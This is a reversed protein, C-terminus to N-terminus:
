GHPRQGLHLLLAKAVADPLSLVRDPGVGISRSGGIGRLQAAVLRLREVPSVTSPLRLQLSILRGLAEALAAIDSGARGVNIFVEFPGDEDSNVTANVKGDPSPLSYTLGAVVVPRARLGAGEPQVPEVSDKETMMTRVEVKM